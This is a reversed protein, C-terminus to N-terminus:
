FWLRAGITFVHANPYASTPTDDDGFM